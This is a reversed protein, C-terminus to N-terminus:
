NLLSRQIRVRPFAREKKRPIQANYCLVMHVCVGDILWKGNDSIQTMKLKKTKHKTTTEKNKYYVVSHKEKYCTAHKKKKRLLKRLVQGLTCCCKKWINTKHNCRMKLSSGTCIRIDTPFSETIKLAENPFYPCPPENAFLHM